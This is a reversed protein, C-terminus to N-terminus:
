ISFAMKNINGRLIGHCKFGHHCLTVYCSHLKLYFCVLYPYVYLACKGTINQWNESSVSAAAKISAPVARDAATWAEIQDLMRDNCARDQLM